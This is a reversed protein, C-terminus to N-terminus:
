FRSFVLYWWFDQRNRLSPFHSFSKCLFTIDYIGLEYLSSREWAWSILTYKVNLNETTSHKSLEPFLFKTRNYVDLVIKM